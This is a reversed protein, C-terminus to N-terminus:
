PFLVVASAFVAVSTALMAPLARALRARRRILTGALAGAVLACAACALFRAFLPIAVLATVVAPDRGGAHLLDLLAYMWFFVVAGVGIRAGITGSMTAVILVM